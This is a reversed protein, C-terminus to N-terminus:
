EYIIITKYQVGLERAEAKSERVLVDFDDCDFRANMRDAIRYGTGDIQIITGFPLCNNAAVAEVSHCIETGDATICPSSDTEDMSPTYFTVRALIQSETVYESTNEPLTGVFVPEPPQEAALGIPTPILMMSMSLKVIIGIVFAKKLNKTYNIPNRKSFFRNIKRDYLDLGRRMIRFERQKEKERKLIFRKYRRSVLWNTLRTELWKIFRRM